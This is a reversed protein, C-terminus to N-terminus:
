KFFIKFNEQKRWFHEKRLIQLFASCFLKGHWFNWNIWKIKLRFFPFNLTKLESDFNMWIFSMVKWFNIFIYFFSVFAFTIFALVITRHTPNQKGNGFDHNYFSNKAFVQLTEWFSPISVLYCKKLNQSFYATTDWLFSFSKNTFLENITLELKSFLSSFTFFAM